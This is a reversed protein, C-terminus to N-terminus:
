VDYTRIYVYEFVLRLIYGKSAQLERLLVPQSESTTDEQIGPDSGCM